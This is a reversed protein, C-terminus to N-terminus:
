AFLEMGGMFTTLTARKGWGDRRSGFDVQLTCTCPVGSCKPTFKDKSLDTSWVSTPCKKEKEFVAYAFSFMSNNGDIGVATPLIGGSTSKFHCGDLGILPWKCKSEKCKVRVKNTDNKVFVIDRGHLMSHRKVRVENPHTNMGITPVGQNFGLWDVDKDINDDFLIDDFSYDSNALKDSHNSDDGFSQENDESKSNSDEGDNDVRSAEGVNEANSTDEDKEENDSLDNEEFNDDTDNDFSSLNYAQIWQNLTNFSKLDLHEVFVGVVRNDEVFNDLHM